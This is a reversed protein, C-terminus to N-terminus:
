EGTREKDRKEQKVLRFGNLEIRADYWDTYYRGSGRFRRPTGYLSCGGRLIPRAWKGGGHPNRRPSVAYFNEYASLNDGCWERVGGALGMVGCWSADGRLATVPPLTRPPKGNVFGVKSEDWENGWPWTLGNPGRAAWEWEAETPLRGGAWKAYAEADIRSVRCIPHDDGLSLAWDWARGDDNYVAIKKAQPKGERGTEPSGWRYGTEKLFRKWQKVTVEHRYMWFGDLEVEHVPRENPEGDTSGMLFAGERMGVGDADRTSPVWVMEAGDSRNVTRFGPMGETGRNDALPRTNPPLVFGPSPRLRPAPPAPVTRRSEPRKASPAIHTGTLVTHLELAATAISFRYAQATELFGPDAKKWQQFAESDPPLQAFIRAILREADDALRRAQESGSRRARDVLQRLLALYRSDDIGERAIELKPTSLPGTPSPYSAMWCVHGRKTTSPIFRFYPDCDPWEGAWQHLGGADMMDLILGFSLRTFGLNYYWSKRGAALATAACYASYYNPQRVDIRDAWREAWSRLRNGRGWPSNDICITVAGPVTKAARFLKTSVTSEEGIALFLRPWDAHRAHDLLLRVFEAFLDESTRGEGPGQQALAEATQDFFSRTASGINLVVPGTFGAARVLSMLRDTESFDATVHGDAYTLFFGGYNSYSPYFAPSNLGYERWLTFLRDWQEPKLWAKRKGTWPTAEMYLGCPRPPSPLQLPLVRLRIKVKQTPGDGESVVFDGEYWGPVADDPAHVTVWVHQVRGPLINFSPHKELPGAEYRFLRVADADKAGPKSARTPVAIYRVIRVDVHSNPITRGDPGRLPTVSARVNKHGGPSYLAFVFPEYEGLSAFRWQTKGVDEPAPLSTPTLAEEYYVSAVALGRKPLAAAREVLSDHVLKWAPGPVGMVNGPKRAPGRRGMIKFALPMEASASLGMIAVLLWFKTRM